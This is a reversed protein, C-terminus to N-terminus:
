CSTPAPAPVGVACLVGLFAGARILLIGAASAPPLSASFSSCKTADTSPMPCSVTSTERSSWFVCARTLNPADSAILFSVLGLRVSRLAWCTRGPSSDLHRQGGASADVLDDPRQDRHGRRDTKCPDNRCRGLQRQREAVVHVSRELRRSLVDLSLKGRM